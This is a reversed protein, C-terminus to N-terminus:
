PEHINETLKDNVAVVVLQQTWYARFNGQKFGEASSKGGYYFLPTVGSRPVTRKPELHDHNKIHGKPEV